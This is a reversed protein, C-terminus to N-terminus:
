EASCIPSVINTEPRLLGLGQHHRHRDLHRRCVRLVRDGDHDASRGQGLPARRGSRGRDPTDRGPARSSPAASRRSLTRRPARGGAFNRDSFARLDVIPQEATLARWFFGICAIGCVDVAQGVEIRHIEAPHAAVRRQLDALCHEDRPEADFNRDSFARLDVIPQEATLARWFFGICAIGCVIAAPPQRNLKTM